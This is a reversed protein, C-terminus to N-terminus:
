QTFIHKIVYQCHHILTTCKCHRTRQGLSSCDNPRPNSGRWRWLLAGPGSIRRTLVALLGFNPHCCIKRLTPRFLPHKTKVATLYAKSLFRCGIFPLFISINGTCYLIATYVTWPFSIGLRWIIGHQFLLHRSQLKCSLFCQGCAPRAPEIGTNPVVWWIFTTM